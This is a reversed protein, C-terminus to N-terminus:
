ITAKILLEVIDFVKLAKEGGKAAKTLLDVCNPCCSIIAEAGSKEAEEIRESAAWIAFDNYAIGVGGGYGCCWANDHHREMEVLELGKISKLLERPQEYIGKDGRRWVKGVAINPPEYKPTWHYWPEALRGLNCPDHYTVKIPINNKLEFKGDKLLKELYETVHVVTYPMDATSKNLMKPYDVKLTKYCEADSTLVVNADSKKIAEFNHELIKQVTELQGSAFLEHGSSWEDDLVMFRVGCKDLLQVTAQALEPHLYSASDGVFYLIETNSTPRVNSNSLWKLRDQHNAGYINHSKIVNDALVKHAELPGKGAKVCLERFTEIVQLVEVDLNRKCRIDCAGCLTCHWLADMLKPTFTLRGELVAIASHLLGHASYLNFGYKTDLPCQRSFRLSKIYNLDIFKCFSCRVCTSAQHKYEEINM